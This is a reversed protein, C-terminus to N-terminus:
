ILNWLQHHRLRQVHKDDIGDGQAVAQILGVAFPLAGSADRRILKSSAFMHLVNIHTCTQTHAKYMFRENSEQYAVSISPMSEQYVVRVVCTNISPMFVGVMTPHISENHQRSVLAVVTISPIIIHFRAVFLAESLFVEGDM